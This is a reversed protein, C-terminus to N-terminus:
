PYPIVVVVNKFRGRSTVKFNHDVHEGLLPYLLNQQIRRKSKILSLIHLSSLYKIEALHWTALRWTGVEKGLALSRAVDSALRAYALESAVYNSLNLLHVFTQFLRSRLRICSDLNPHPLLALNQSHIELPVIESRM